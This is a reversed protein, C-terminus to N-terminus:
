EKCCFSECATQQPANPTLCRDANVTITKACCTNTNHFKCSSVKCMIKTKSM